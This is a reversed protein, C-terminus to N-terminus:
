GTQLEKEVWKGETFGFPLVARQRIDSLNFLVHPLVLLKKIDKNNNAEDSQMIVFLGPNVFYRLAPSECVVPTGEPIFEMIDSFAETLNNDTVKAFFVRAAGAKLMRSTDKNIGNDTEEYISYGQKDVLVILGPTTEHFHPTIKVSIIGSKSFQEIIRCALTTKGAKNGTGAILLLNPVLMDKFFVRHNM